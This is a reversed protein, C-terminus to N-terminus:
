GTAPKTGVPEAKPATLSLVCTRRGECGQNSPFFTLFSHFRSRSTLPRSPAASLAPICRRWQATRRNTSSTNVELALAPFPVIDAGPCVAGTLPPTGLMLPWGSTPIVSVAFGPLQFPGGLVYVNWHSCQELAPSEHLVTLPAVACVSRSRAVSAPKVMRTATVALLLFPVLMAVDAGVGAIAAGAGAGAVLVVVEVAVVVVVAAVLVVALVVVVDLEVVVGDVVVVVVVVGVVVVVCVVVGVVVVVDEVPVSRKLPSKSVHLRECHDSRCSACRPTLGGPNTTLVAGDNPVQEEWTLTVPAAPVEVLPSALKRQAPPM